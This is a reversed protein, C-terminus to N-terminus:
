TQEYPAFLPRFLISQVYSLAAFGIILLFVTVAAGTYPSYFFFFVFPANLLVLTFFTGPRDAIMAFIHVFVQKTTFRFRALIPFFYLACIGLLVLAIGSLIGIVAFLMGSHSLAIRIDAALLAAGAGFILSFPLAQRFNERFSRFFSRVPYADEGRVMRLTVSYLATLAPGFTILPISTLVFLVNLLLLDVLRSFFDNIKSLDNMM